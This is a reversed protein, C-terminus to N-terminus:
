DLFREVIHEMEDMQEDIDVIIAREAKLQLRNKIPVCFTNLVVLFLLPYFCQEIISLTTHEYLAVGVLLALFLTIVYLWNGSPIHNNKPEQITFDMAETMFKIAYDPTEAHFKQFWVGQALIGQPWKAFEEQMKDTLLKANVKGFMKIQRKADSIVIDHIGHWQEKFTDHRQKDM